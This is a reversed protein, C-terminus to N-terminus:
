IRGRGLATHPPMISERFLESHAWRISRACRFMHRGFKNYKPSADRRILSRPVLIIVTLFQIGRCQQQINICAHVAARGVPTRWVAEYARHPTDVEYSFDLDRRCLFPNNIDVQSSDIVHRRHSNEEHHSALEKEALERRPQQGQAM